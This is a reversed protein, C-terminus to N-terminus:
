QTPARLEFKATNTRLWIGNGEKPGLPDYIEIYVSYKGPASLDYFASLDYTQVDSAGSAIDRCIVPGDEVVPGDGSRFDGHLHRHYETKSREGDKGEVHVRYLRSATSFCIEQGSINKVTVIARPKQGVVLIDKEMTISVSISASQGVSSAVQADISISCAVLAMLTAM